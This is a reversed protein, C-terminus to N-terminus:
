LFVIPSLPHLKKFIKVTYAAGGEDKKCYAIMGDAREAM